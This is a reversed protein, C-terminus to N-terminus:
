LSSPLNQAAGCKDCKVHEEEITEQKGELARLYTDFDLEEIRTDDEAIANQTGCFECQLTRTGPAFSLKAGCGTCPFTKVFAPPDDRSPTEAKAPDVPPGAEAPAVSM